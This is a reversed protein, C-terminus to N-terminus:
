VVPGLGVAEVGGPPLPALGPGPRAPAGVEEREALAGTGADAHWERHGVQLGGQRGDERTEADLEVAGPRIPGGVEEAHHDRPPEGRPEDRRLRSAIMREVIPTGCPIIPPETRRRATDSPWSGCAKAYSLSRRGRVEAPPDARLARDGRPRRASPSA